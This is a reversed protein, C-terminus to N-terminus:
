KVDPRYRRDLRTSHSVGSMNGVSDKPHDERAAEFIWLSEVGLPALM